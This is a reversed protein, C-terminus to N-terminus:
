EVNNAVDGIFSDLSESLQSAINQVTEFKGQRELLELGSIIYSFNDSLDSLQDKIQASIDDQKSNDAAIIRRVLLFVGM